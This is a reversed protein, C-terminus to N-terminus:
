SPSKDERSQAEPRSFENEMLSCLEVYYELLKEQRKMHGQLLQRLYEIEKELADIREWNKEM